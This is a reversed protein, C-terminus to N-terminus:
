ARGSGLGSFIAIIKVYESTLFSSNADVLAFGRQFYPGHLTMGVLAFRLTRSMDHHASPERLSDGQTEVAQALIDSGIHIAGSTVGARLLLNM